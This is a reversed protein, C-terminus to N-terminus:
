AWSWNQTAIRPMTAAVLREASNKPSASPSGTVSKTRRKRNPSLAAKSALKRGSASLAAWRRTSPKAKPM